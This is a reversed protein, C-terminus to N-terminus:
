ELKCFSADCLSVKSVIEQLRKEGEESIETIEFGGVYDRNPGERRVWRCIAEFSFPEIPFFHGPDIVLTKTEGPTAQIGRAGIGKTSIDRVAGIKEPREMEYIPVSLELYERLERRLQDVDITDDFGPFRGYLESPKIAKVAELKRFVSQLGKISLRFKEMLESDTMGRRIDNIIDKAKIQRKEAM